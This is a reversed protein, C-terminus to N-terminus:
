KVAIVEVQGSRRLVRIGIDLDHRELLLDVSADGLRLNMIRVWPLFDPLQGRTFVIQRRPADVTVGLASQLLLFIAGASWAQPACAVPYRTPGESPRRTFGCVLEPVRHLDVSVSLDFLARFVTAAAGTLGYAAFGAAILANDHPWVSGNHYSMPNYRCEGAALTRVGWGSFMEQRMLSAAIREARERSAIRGFLCHGANSTRVECPRM